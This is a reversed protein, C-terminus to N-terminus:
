HGASVHVHFAAELNEGHEDMFEIMVETEGHEAFTHMAEYVGSMHEDAGHSMSEGSETHALHIQASMGGMGHGDAAEIIWFKVEAM